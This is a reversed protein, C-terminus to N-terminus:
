APREEFRTDEVRRARFRFQDLSGAVVMRLNLAEGQMLREFHAVLFAHLGSDACTPGERTLVRSVAADDKARRREVQLSAPGVATVAEAYGELPLDLRYTPVYPDASFDLSKGGLRRG